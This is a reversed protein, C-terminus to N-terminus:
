DAANGFHVAAAGRSCHKQYSLPRGHNIPPRLLVRGSDSHSGVKVELATACARIDFIRSRRGGAPIALDRAAVLPNQISPLEWWIVGILYAVILMLSLLVMVGIDIWGTPATAPRTQLLLGLACSLHPPSWASLDVSYPVHWLADGPISLLSCPSALAVAGMYPSHRVWQRPDIKGQRGAKSAVYTIAPGVLMSSLLFACYTMLRPPGIFDAGAPIKGTKLHMRADWYAGIVLQVAWLGLLLALGGALPSSPSTARGFTTNSPIFLLWWRTSVVISVAVCTFAFVELVYSALLLGIQSSQCVSVLCHASNRVPPRFDSLSAPNTAPPASHGLDM